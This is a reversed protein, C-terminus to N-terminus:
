RKYKKVSDKNIDFEEVFFANRKADIIDKDSIDDKRGIYSLSIDSLLFSINFKLGDREDMNYYDFATLSLDRNKELENDKIARYWGYLAHIRSSNFLFEGKDNLINYVTPKIAGIYNLSYYNEASNGVVKISVFEDIGGTLRKLEEKSFERNLLIKGKRLLSFTKRYEELCQNMYEQDYCLEYENVHDDEYILITKM